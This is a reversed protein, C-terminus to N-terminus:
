VSLRPHQGTRRPRRRSVSQRSQRCRDPLPAPPTTTRSAPCGCEAVGAVAAPKRETARPSEPSSLSFETVCFSCSSFRRAGRFIVRAFFYPVPSVCPVTSPRVRAHACHKRQWPTAKRREIRRAERPPNAFKKAAVRSTVFVCSSFHKFTSEGDHFRAIRVASRRM